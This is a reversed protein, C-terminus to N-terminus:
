LSVTVPQYALGIRALASVPSHNILRQGREEAIRRALEVHALIREEAEAVGSYATEGPREYFRPAAANSIDVGVFGVTPAGTSLAFQLASIAVSGGQFVGRDPDRSFGADRDENLRVFPLSSLMEDSRRPAGYPKRIDDILIVTRGTLWYRDIEFLSRLVGCSFLCPTDKGIREVMMAFHRWVFREDEIAVAFPEAIGAGILSIAGNLLVATRPPLSAIPANLASPGSGVITLGGEAGHRLVESRTLVFRFDSFVATGASTASRGAISLGPLWSFYHARKRGLLVQCALKVLKRRLPRDSGRGTTM